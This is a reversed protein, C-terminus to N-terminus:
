EGNEWIFKFDCCDDGQMLTKTRELRLSPHLAKIAAFDPKCEYMYGIDEAGWERWTEAWLCAVTRVSRTNETYVAPEDVNAHSWVDSMEGEFLEVFDRFSNIPNRRAMEKSIKVREREIVDGVLRHAEEKGLVRELERVIALVGRHPQIIPPNFLEKITLETRHDWKESESDM